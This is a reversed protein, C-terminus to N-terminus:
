VERNTPLTLHTYSVAKIHGGNALDGFLIKDALPKKIKEQIVRALPRAGYNFLADNVNGLVRNTVGLLSSPYIEEEISDRVSDGEAYGRRVSMIGDDSRGGMRFMPRKLIRNMM